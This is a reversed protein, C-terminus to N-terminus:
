KLNRQIWAQQEANYAAAEGGRFQEGDEMRREWAQEALADLCDQCYQRGWEDPVAPQEECRECLNDMTM